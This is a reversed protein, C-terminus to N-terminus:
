DIQAKLKSAKEQYRAAKTPDGKGTFADALQLYFDAEMKADDIIYDLGTELHAVAEDYKSIKNSAVGNTLYLLPQAPYLDLGTSATKIAAEYAGADLQLLVTNKILELNEPDRALAKELYPLAKTKDNRKIFYNALEEYVKADEVQEDFVAIAAELQPQYQPNNNVYMLFDNIVRHKVKGDIRPSLLTKNMAVIAEDVKGDELYFKYLALQVEAAEPNIKQLELATDYAKQTEGQESYLFILKLYEKENQPNAAINAEVKATQQQTNGTQRYINAKLKERYPDQGKEEDLEELLVLAEDYKKTRIYIRALDEKYQTNFAVLKLATSAAKEYDQTEYHVDYLLELVPARNPKLELAKELDEEARDYEKRASFNKAREFYLFDRDPEMQICKNLALIARDYNQIGKQKLAEFFSEQFDDSVDELDDVNEDAFPTQDQAYTHKRSLMSLSLFLVLIYTNRKM